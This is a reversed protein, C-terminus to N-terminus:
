PGLLVERADYSVLQHDANFRFSLQIDPHSKRDNSKIYAAVREQGAFGIFTHPAGHADLFREVDARRTGAPLDKDIASKWEQLTMQRACATLALALLAVIQLRGFSRMAAGDGGIRTLRQRDSM